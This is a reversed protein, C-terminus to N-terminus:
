GAGSPALTVAYTRSLSKGSAAPAGSAVVRLTAKEGAYSTLPVADFAFSALPGLTVHMTRRQVSGNPATFTVSLSARQDCYAGNTVVVGVDISTVPPLVIHGVPAPLPSPTIAVASISLARTLTLSASGTLTAIVSAWNVHALNSTAAPLSVRGPEGVLSFRKYNWRSLASSVSAQAATVSSLPAQTGPLSLATTTAGIIAADANVRAMTLNILERQVHHALVPRHLLNADSVLAPLQRDIQSLRAAFIVRSLSKGHELLYALHFDLQNTSAVLRTALAAFSRNESRRPSTAEHASRSVDRAFLVAVVTLALALVVLASHRRRQARTRAV